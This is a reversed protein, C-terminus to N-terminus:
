QVVYLRQKVDSLQAAIVADLHAGLGPDEEIYMPEPQYDAEAPAATAFAVIGSTVLMALCAAVVAYITHKM